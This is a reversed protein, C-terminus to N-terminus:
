SKDRGLILSDTSLNKTSLRCIHEMPIYNNVTAIDVHVTYGPFYYIVSQLLAFRM